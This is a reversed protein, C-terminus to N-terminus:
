IDDDAAADNWEYGVFAVFEGERNVRDAQRQSVAWKTPTLLNSQDAVCCFDLYGVDRAFELNELVSDRGGSFDSRVGLDGFYITERPQEELVLIPNSMGRTGTSDDVIM